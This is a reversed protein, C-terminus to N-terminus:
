GTTEPANTTACWFDCLTEAIFRFGPVIALRSLPASYANLLASIPPSNYRQFPGDALHRSIAPTATATLLYFLAAAFAIVPAFFCRTKAIM